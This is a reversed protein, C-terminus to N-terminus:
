RGMGTLRRLGNIIKLSYKEVQVFRYVSVIRRSIEQHDIGAEKLISRYRDLLDFARGPMDFIVYLMISKLLHDKTVGALDLRKWNMISPVYYSKGWLPEGRHFIRAANLPRKYEVDVDALEYGCGRMLADIDGFNGQGQWVQAMEFEIKVLKIFNDQFLRAAGKLVFFDHGETNIDVCDIDKQGLFLNDLTNLRVRITKRTAVSPDGFRDIYTQLPQHLSSAREDQAVYFDADGQHDSVCLPEKLNTPEFDFKKVKSSPLLDWPYKLPGGSGVDIFGIPAALKSACYVCFLGKRRVTIGMDFLDM